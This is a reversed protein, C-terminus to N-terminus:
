LRYELIQPLIFVACSHHIYSNNNSYTTKILIMLRRKVWSLTTWSHRYATVLVVVLFTDWFMLFTTAPKTSQFRDSLWKISSCLIDLSRMSFFYNRQACLDFLRQSFICVLSWILELATSRDMIFGKLRFLENIIDVLCSFIKIWCESKEVIHQVSKCNTNEKTHCNSTWPRQMAMEWLFNFNSGPQPVNWLSLLNDSQPGISTLSLKSRRKFKEWATWRPKFIQNCIKPESQSWRRTQCCLSYMPLATCVICSLCARCCKEAALEM